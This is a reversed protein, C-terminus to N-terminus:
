HEYELGLMAVTSTRDSYFHERGTQFLLNHGSVFGRLSPLLSYSIKANVIAKSQVEFESPTYEAASMMGFVNDARVLTHRTFYYINANLNLKPIPQVNLFLGGVFDPTGKHQLRVQNAPDRPDHDLEFLHLTNPAHHDISTKQVTAFLRGQLKNKTVLVSATLGAQHAITDINDYQVFVEYTGSSVSQAHAYGEAFDRNYSYFVEIDTELGDIIQGRYGLEVADTHMPEIARNGLIVTPPM